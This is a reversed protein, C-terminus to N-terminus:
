KEKGAGTKVEGPRGPDPDGNVHPRCLGGWRGLQREGVRSPQRGVDPTEGELQSLLDRININGVYPPPTTSPISSCLGATQVNM